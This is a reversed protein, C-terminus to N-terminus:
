VRRLLLVIVVVLLITGLLGGGIYIYDGLIPATNALNTLM